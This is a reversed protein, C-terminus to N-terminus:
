TYFPTYYLWTSMDSRKILFDKRFFESRPDPARPMQRGYLPRAPHICRDGSFHASEREHAKDGFNKSQSVSLGIANEQAEGPFGQPHETQGRRYIQRAPASSCSHFSSHPRSRITVHSGLCWLRPGYFDYWPQTEARREGLSAGRERMFDTSEDPTGTHNEM